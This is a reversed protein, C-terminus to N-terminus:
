SVVPIFEISPSEVEVDRIHAFYALCGKGALKRERISIIIKAKKPKYVWEWEFSPRSDASPTVGYSDQILNHPPTGSNNGTSAPITSKIPRAALTPRRSGGLNDAYRYTTGSGIIICSRPLRDLNTHRFAVGSGNLLSRGM